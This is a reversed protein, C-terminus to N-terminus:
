IIFEYGRNLVKIILPIGGLVGSAVNRETYVPKKKKRRLLLAAAAVGASAVIVLATEM